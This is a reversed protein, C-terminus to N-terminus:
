TQSPLEFKNRRKLKRPYNLNMKDTSIQSSLEFSKRKKLKLPYNLSM